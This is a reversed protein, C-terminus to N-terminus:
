DLKELRKKIEEQDFDFIKSWKSNKFELFYQNRFIILLSSIQWIALFNEYFKNFYEEDYEFIKLPDNEGLQDESNETEIIGTHVTKSLDHYIEDLLDKLCDYDYAESYTNTEDDSIFKLINEEYKPKILDVINETLGYNGTVSERLEGNKWNKMEKELDRSYGIKSKEDFYLSRLYIEFYQRLIFNAAVYQGSVALVVSSTLINTIYSTLYFINELFHAEDLPIHQIRNNLKNIIQILKDIENKYNDLTEEKVNEMQNEKSGLYNNLRQKFLEDLKERYDEGLNEELEKIYAEYRKRKEEEFKDNM